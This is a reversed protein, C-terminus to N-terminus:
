RAVEYDKSYEAKLSAVLDKEDDVFAIRPRQLVPM